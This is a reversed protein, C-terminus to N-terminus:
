RYNHATAVFPVFAFGPYEQIDFEEESHKHERRIVGNSPYVLVGGNRLVARWRVPIESIDAAVIIRDVHDGIEIEGFGELADGCHFRVRRYLDPYKAVNAKGFECLAPILEVAYVIGLAGVMHALLASQWGSGFGIDVVCEGEKTGLLELMFVVTRPQSITQGYGIPLPRDDYANAVLNEPVFKHRPVKEMVALVKEDYIDRAKMHNDVMYKRADYFEDYSQNQLNIQTKNIEIIKKNNTKYNQNLILLIILAVVIFFVITVKNFKRKNIKM